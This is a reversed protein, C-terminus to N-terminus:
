QHVMHPSVSTFGDNEPSSRGNLMCLDLSKLTFILEKGFQNVTTDIAMRSPVGDCPKGLDDLDGCRANFDGCILFDDVHYNDIILSKLSDFFEQSYDGRSSGVPPLYYACIGLSYKNLKHVLQVWLIGEFKDSIVAVNFYKLIDLSILIGVGGSGRCARKSILKRNNGFWSYGTLEIKQEGILFTECM